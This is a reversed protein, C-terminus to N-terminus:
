RQGVCACVCLHACACSVSVCVCLPVSICLCLSVSVYLCVSGFVFVRVFSCESMCAWSVCLGVPVCFCLSLSVCVCLCLCVCVKYDVGATSIMTPAFKDESFRTMLSTKGVGADGLLLIRITHDFDDGQFVFIYSLFFFFSPQSPLARRRISKCGICIMYIGM